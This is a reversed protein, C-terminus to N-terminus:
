GYYVSEGIELMRALGHGVEVGEPLAADLELSQLEGPDAVAVVDEVGQEEEARQRADLHPGRTRRAVLRKGLHELGAARQPAHDTDGGIGALRGLAGVHEVRVHPDAHPLRPLALSAERGELARRDGVG